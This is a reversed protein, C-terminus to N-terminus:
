LFDCARGERTDFFRGFEVVSELIGRRWLEVQLCSTRVALSNKRNRVRGGM